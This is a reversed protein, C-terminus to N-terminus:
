TVVKKVEKNDERSYKYSGPPNFWCLLDSWLEGRSLFRWRNGFSNSYFEWVKVNAQLAELWHKSCIQPSSDTRGALEKCILILVYGSCHSVSRIFEVGTSVMNQEILHTWWDSSLHQTIDLQQLCRSIVSKLKISSQYNLSVLPCHVMSQDDSSEYDSRYGDRERRSEGNGGEWWCIKWQQERGLVSYQNEVASYSVVM